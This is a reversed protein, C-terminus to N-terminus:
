RTTAVAAICPDAKAPSSHYRPRSVVSPVCQQTCRAIPDRVESVVVVVALAMESHERQRAALQAASPSMPTVRPLSSTKSKDAPSM